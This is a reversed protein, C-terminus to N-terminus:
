EDNREREDPVAGRSGAGSVSASHALAGFSLTRSDRATEGDAHAEGDGADTGTPPETDALRGVPLWGTGGSENCVICTGYGRIEVTRGDVGTETIGELVLDATRCDCFGPVRWLEGVGVERSDRVSLWAGDDLVRLSVTVPSFVAARRKLRTTVAFSPPLSSV